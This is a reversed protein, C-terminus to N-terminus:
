TSGARHCGEHRWSEGRVLVSSTMHWTVDLLGKLAHALLDDPRTQNFMGRPAAIFELVDWRV